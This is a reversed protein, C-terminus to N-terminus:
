SMLRSFYEESGLIVALALEDSMGNQMADIFADLAADDVPRRLYLEFFAQVTRSNEEASSLIAAAVGQRSVGNQLVAEWAQAGAQEISRKLLLEYATSLFGGNTGGARLFYEESGLLHAQLQDKTGGQALFQVWGERGAPEASRGLIRTYMEEVLRSRYEESNLVASVVQSRNAEGRDLLGAFAELAVPEASRGLLDVFLQDVFRQNPPKRVTVTLSDTNFAGRQDKWLLGVSYTGDELYRHQLAVDRSAEPPFDFTETPGGDGWNVELSFVDDPLITTIRGTLTAVGGEDIPSTIARRPFMPGNVRQVFVVNPTYFVRYALGSASVAISNNPLGNFTGTVSPGSVIPILAGLPPLLQPQGPVNIDLLQLTANNLALTALPGSVSLQGVSTAFLDAAYVANANAFSANEVVTLSRGAGPRVTGGANVTLLEVTGDGALIGGANVVVPSNRQNGDITLTGADVGTFGGYTSDATLRMSGVGAKALLTAELVHSSVILQTGGPGSNVTFTRAGMGLSLRGGEISAPRVQGDLTVSTATVNGGLTLTDNTGITVMGGNLTLAGIRDRTAGGGLPGRVDLWGRVNVTVPATDLIQDSLLVRVQDSGASGSDDGIVLPGRIATVGAKELILKGKNVKTTGTYTNAQNGAFRLTGFNFQDLVLGGTRGSANSIAGDLTLEADPSSVQVATEESGLEIAGSWTLTGAAHLAGFTAGLGHLTLPETGGSSEPRLLLTGRDNVTTRGASDGLARPHRVELLGRNVTTTGTYINGQTLVLYGNGEKRFGGAGSITGHVTFTIVHRVEFLMDSGVLELDSHLHTQDGEVLLEQTLRISGGSISFGDREIRIRSTPVVGIDNISSDRCVGSSDPFYLVRNGEPDSPGPAQLEIWNRPDSWFGSQCGRWTFTAPALRDELLELRPVARNKKQNRLWTPM